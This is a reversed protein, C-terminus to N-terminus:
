CSCGEPVAFLVLKGPDSHRRREPGAPNISLGSSLSGRCPLAARPQASWAAPARSSSLFPHCPPAPHGRCAGQASVARAPPPVRPRLVKALSPASTQVSRPCQLNPLALVYPKESAPPLSSGLRQGPEGEGGRRARGPPQVRGRAARLPLPRRPGAPRAGRAECGIAAAAPNLALQEASRGCRRREWGYLRPRGGLSRGEQRKDSPQTLESKPLSIARCM